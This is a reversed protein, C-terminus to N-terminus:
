TWLYPRSPGFSLAFASRLIIDSKTLEPLYLTLRGNALNVDALGAPNSTIKYSMDGCVSVSQYSIEDLFSGARPQYRIWEDLVYSQLAAGPAQQAFSLSLIPPPHVVFDVLADNLWRIPQQWWPIETRPPRHRLIMNRAATDSQRSLGRGHRGGGCLGAAELRGIDFDIRGVTAAADSNPDAGADLMEEKGELRRRAAEGSGGGRGALRGFACRRGDGPQPDRGDVPRARGPQEGRCNAGSGGEGAEATANASGCRRGRRRVSTRRGGARRTSGCLGGRCGAAGVSRRRLGRELADGADFRQVRRRRRRLPDGPPGSRAPRAPAPPPAGFLITLPTRTATPSRTPTLRRLAAPPLPPCPDPAPSCTSYSSPPQRLTRRCWSTKTDARDTPTPTPLVLDSRSAEAQVREGGVDRADLDIDHMGEGLGDGAGPSRRHQHRERRRSIGMGDSTLDWDAIGSGSDQVMVLVGLTEGCGPCFSPVANWTWSSRAVSDIDVSLGESTTDRRHRSRECSSTTAEMASPSRWIAMAVGGGGDVVDLSALGSVTTAPWAASLWRRRSWSSTGGGTGSISGNM